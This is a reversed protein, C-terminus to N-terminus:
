MTESRFNVLLQDLKRQFMDAELHDREQHGAIYINGTFNQNIGVGM